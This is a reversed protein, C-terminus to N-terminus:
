NIKIIHKMFENLLPSLWKNKHYSIQTSFKIKDRNGKIVRIKKAEILDEVCFQPLLSVGLNSVVCQKVAEISSFELTRLPSVDINYLYNQFFRRLSCEKETFIFCKKEIEGKNERNINKIDFEKGSIFVLNEESIKHTILDEFNTKPELTIILDLEGAYLRERLKYCNDSIIKLNVNPYARNFQSLGSNLRYIVLSESVGINLEGKTDITDVSINKIIDYTNLLEVVYKYLENGTDTVNITKGLRDFLPAGVERELSQIHESVTSKGYYLSEAAKSFSKLEVVKKFTQFKRIEM